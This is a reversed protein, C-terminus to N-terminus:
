LNEIEKKIELYYSYEGDIDNSNLVLNVAILSCEILQNHNIIPNMFDKNLLDDYHNYLAKAKQIPILKM